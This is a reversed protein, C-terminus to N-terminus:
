IWAVLHAFGKFGKTCVVLRRKVQNRLTKWLWWREEKVCTCAWCPHAWVRILQTSNSPRCNSQKNNKTQNNTPNKIYRKICWHRPFCCQLAVTLHMKAPKMQCSHPKWCKHTVYYGECNQKKLLWRRWLHYCHLWYFDLIAITNSWTLSWGAESVWWVKQTLCRTFSFTTM